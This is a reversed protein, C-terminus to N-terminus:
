LRSAKAAVLFETDRQIQRQARRIRQEARRVNAKFKANQAKARKTEISRGARKNNRWLAAFGTKQTCNHERCWAAFAEQTERDLIVPVHKNSM